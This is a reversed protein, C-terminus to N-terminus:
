LLLLYLVSNIICLFERVSISELLLIDQPTAEVGAFVFTYETM